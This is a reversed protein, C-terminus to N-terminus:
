EDSARSKREGDTPRRITLVPCLASRAVKEAVSGFALHRWGSLGHSAIVILGADEEQAVAVIEDAVQGRRVLTRVQVAESLHGKIVTHLKQAADSAMTEEIDGANLVLNSYQGLPQVIYVLYLEAGFHAALEGAVELAVYTPESFDTPCVIKQLPLM